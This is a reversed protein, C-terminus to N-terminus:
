QFGALHIRNEIYYAFELDHNRFFLVSHSDVSRIRVHCFDYMECVRLGGCSCEALCSLISLLCLLYWKKESLFIDQLVLKFDLHCSMWYFFIM